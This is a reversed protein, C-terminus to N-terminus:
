LDGTKGARLVLICLETSLPQVVNCCTYQVSGLLQVVATVKEYHTSEETTCSICQCMGAAKATLNGEGHKAGKICSCQWTGSPISSLGEAWVGQNLKECKVPM